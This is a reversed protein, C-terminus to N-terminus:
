YIFILMEQNVALDNPNFILSTNQKVNVTAIYLLHLRCIRLSMDRQLCLVLVGKNLKRELFLCTGM